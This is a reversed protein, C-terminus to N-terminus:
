CCRSQPNNDKHESRHREFQGRSMPEVGDCRCDDLYEDWKAEGTAERLYWRIGRAAKAVATKM